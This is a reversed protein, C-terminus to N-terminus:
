PWAPVIWGSDAVLDEPRPGGFRVLQAGKSAFRQGPGLSLRPYLTTGERRGPTAAERGPLPRPTMDRVAMQRGAGPLPQTKLAAGAQPKALSWERAEDEARAAERLSLMNEARELLYERHVNDLMEVLTDNLYNLAFYIESQLFEDALTLHRLQLWQRFYLQSGARTSPLQWPYVMRLDKRWAPPFPATEGRALTASFYTPGAPPSGLASIQRPRLWYVRPEASRSLPGGPAASEPQGVASDDQRVSVLSSGIGAERLLGALVSAAHRSAADDDVVQVVRQPIVPLRSFHEALVAAELGVGASFYMSWRGDQAEAPAAEISPFWCPVAAAECFRHVPGWESQGLGSVLAFVPRDAMRQQLQADWTAPEGSLEWIDLEWRRETGLVMEAASSMSRQGPTYNGNKQQVAAQLTDLFIRRRQPDVGPAIVSAFRIQRDTVGASWSSSLRRLYDTLLSLDADGLEYRPMMPHLERGSVHRGARLALGLSTADYPAHRENFSKITRLNMQVVARRDQDFLYRGSIPSVQVQGEVGGLGSRRHCQVCSAAEGTLVQGYRWARLAEGNPLRGEEYLRRGAELRAPDVAPLGGNTADTQWIGAAPRRQTTPGQQVLPAAPSAPVAAEPQATVPMAWGLCASVAIWWAFAV